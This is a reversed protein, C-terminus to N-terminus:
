LNERYGLADLKKRIIENQKVKGTHFAFTKLSAALHQKLVSDVDLATMGIRISKLDTLHDLGELTQLTRCNFIGFSQLNKNAPSFRVQELRIQDEIALKRLSPFAAISDFNDFGMVRLIELEELSPHQIESINVRGGLIIVLRKLSQIKSVFELKQKKPICRLKLKQLQPLKALSDIHRTHSEVNLESLNECAYLPSLDINVKLSQGIVLKEIKGLQISNLIHQDALNYIGLSLCRLNAMNKIAELNVVDFLCDISLNSVEPLFRLNSADFKHGYFRVELDKGLEGCLNNIKRLIEPGYCPRDFQLIVDGGAAIVAEIAARDVVNPNQIYERKV